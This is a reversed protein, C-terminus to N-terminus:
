GSVIAQVAVYASEAAGHVTADSEAYAEGAFYVKSAVPAQIVDHSDYNPYHSYSGQIYPEKSWNQIVHKRYYQSAQGDFIEDLEGLIYAMLEAETAMNAYVSAPEGVAFLAFLNATSGKRFAADYYLREGDTSGLAGSIGDFVLLDPYFRESFAMFVKIGDPMPVENIATRKEAPLVPRFTISDNQLMTLPVTVIVRDAEYVQGHTTIVRVINTTYDIEQVPSNLVLRDQIGPVIYRDFFSFWTTNKFKYESYFNSFFNRQRLKGSQWSSITEPRYTIIDIEAEVSSDNLLTALISPDTHIWEAGVDLPVDAFDTVAKVRGGYRDAAELITFDINHQKLAHGATLGAAGAGIVLVRGNFNVDFSTSVVENATCASVM